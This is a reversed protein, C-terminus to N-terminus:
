CRQKSKNAAQRSLSARLGRRKNTTTSRASTSRVARGRYDIEYKWSGPRTPKESFLYDTWYETTSSRKGKSDNVVLHTQYQIVKDQRESYGILATALGMCARADFLAFEWAKGDGKLRRRCVKSTITITQGSITPFISNM